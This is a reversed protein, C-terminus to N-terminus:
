FKDARLAFRFRTAVTRADLHVQVLQNRVGTVTRTFEQGINGDGNDFEFETLKTAALQNNIKCIVVHTKSRGDLKKVRITISDKDLPAPTLFVRDGPGVLDGELQTGFLLKRPGIASWSSNAKQDFFREMASAATAYKASDSCQPFEPGLAKAAVCGAQQTSAIWQSAIDHPIQAISKCPAPFDTGGTVVVPSGQRQPNTVEKHATIAPKDTRVGLVPTGPSQPLTSSSQLHSTQM